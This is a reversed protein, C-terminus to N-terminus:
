LSNHNTTNNIIDAFANLAYGHIRCMWTYEYDMEAAIKHLSKFEIYRKYLVQIYRTDELQHIERIVKYKLDVYRDIMQTIEAEMDVWKSVLLEMSNTPSTQVRDASYDVARAGITKLEALQEIHHNILINLKEVQQLYEKATM